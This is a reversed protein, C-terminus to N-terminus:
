EIYVDTLFCFHVFWLDFVSEWILIWTPLPSKLTTVVCRGPYLRSRPDVRLEGVWRGMEALDNLCTKSETGESWGWLPGSSLLRMTWFRWFAKSLFKIESCTPSLETVQMSTKTKWIAQFRVQFRTRFSAFIYFLRPFCNIYNKKKFKTWRYELCQALHSFEIILKFCFKEIIALYALWYM